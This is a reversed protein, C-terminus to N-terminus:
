TAVLSKWEDANFARLTETHVNGLAALQALSRLVAKEEGSLILVGDYSGTTWLQAEVTVGMKEAERRFTLARSASDKINRSGQDTFRLLTIYRTM